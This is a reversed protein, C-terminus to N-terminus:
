KLKVCMNEQNNRYASVLKHEMQNNSDIRMAQVKLPNFVNDEVRQRMQMGVKLSSVMSVLEKNLMQEERLEDGVKRKVDINMEKIKTMYEDEDAPSVNNDFNFHDVSNSSQHKSYHRSESNANNNIFTNSQVHM